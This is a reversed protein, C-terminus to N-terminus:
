QPDTSPNAYTIFQFHDPVGRCTRHPEDINRTNCEIGNDKPESFSVTLVIRGLSLGIDAAMVLFCEKQYINKYCAIIGVM